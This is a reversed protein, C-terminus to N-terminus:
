YAKLLLLSHITRTGGPRERKCIGAQRGCLSSAELFLGIFTFQSSKGNPERERGGGMIRELEEVLWPSQKLSRIVESSTKPRTQPLPPSLAIMM